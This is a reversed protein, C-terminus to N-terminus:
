GEDLVLAVWEGKGTHMRVRMGDFAQLLEPEQGALIGSLVLLGRRELRKRLTDAMTALIDAQINALVLDYRGRIRNLPTTSAVLRSAVGNIQANEKAIAPSTEEVDIARVGQAGLLLSAIALIGSGTGVDLVKEGGLVRRDVEALALQTSEHIGSGFAGGPDITVRIEDGKPEENEWSPCILLRQGIRTPHFYRRWEDAWADGVVYEVRAAFPGKLRRAVAKAQGEEEFSAVLTVGAEGEALNMTTADREEIGLAGLEWLLGSVVDVEEASADLHVYPYRKLPSSGAKGDATM